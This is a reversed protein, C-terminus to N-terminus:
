PFTIRYFVNGSGPNITLIYRDGVLSPSNTVPAWSIPPTLSPTQQAVFGQSAAPWSLTISTGSKAITVAPPPIVTLTVISSTVSGSTGSVVVSYNAVDSQGVTGLTLNTTTAGSVNNGNALNAGNKRWQYSLPGPGTAAVSFMAATGATNTRSTPQRTITLAAAVTVCPSFESTNGTAPDTTTATIVSGGPVVNPLTATFNGNCNGDTTVMADGLYTQGEGYGAGDCAPSAYFQLLFTTSRAGDLSGQVALQTGASASVLLPYNQLLNAGSDRDCSDNATPGETGLDIGLGTPSGNGFFANGRVLNGTNGTATRIRVGDYGTNAAFAFRNGAGSETGGIVTRGTGGSIRLEVGHWENALPSVGDIQTGIFNGQIINGTSGADGIAIGDRKNGSILNGAGPDKGGIVNSPSGAIDIGGGIDVVPLELGNGLATVGTVDTGIFNGQVVNGSAGAAQLYIGIDKNASILNGAGSVTGGIRNGPAETIGIGSGGNGLASTGSVDTGIFNGQIVNNSAISSYIYIGNENNGSIVNRAAAFTGGIINASSELLVGSDTNGLASHGSVDTGILNGQIENGRV